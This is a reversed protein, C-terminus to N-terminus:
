NIDKQEPRQFWVFTQLRDILDSLKKIGISKITRTMKELLDDLYTM